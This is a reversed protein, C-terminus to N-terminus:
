CRRSGPGGSGPWARGGRADRRAVRGRGRGRRPASPATTRARAPGAVERPGRARGTKPRRRLWTSGREPAPGLPSGPVAGPAAAAPDRPPPRAARGAPRGRPAGPEPGRQVGAGPEPRDRTTKMRAAKQELHLPLGQAGRGEPRAGPVRQSRGKKIRATSTVEPLLFSM